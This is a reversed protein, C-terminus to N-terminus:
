TPLNVDGYGRRDADAVPVPTTDCAPETRYNRVVSFAPNAYAVPRLLVNSNFQDYTNTGLKLPPEGNSDNGHDRTSLTHSQRSITQTGDRSILERRFTNACYHLPGPVHFQVDSPNIQGRRSEPVLRMATSMLLPLFVATGVAQIIQGVLLMEFAPASAAIATGIIFLSTATLFITRLHYPRKVFGTAPILVALTLLYGTTLWQGLTPTIGLDSILTPLAVGLLMENLLVLFASGMLLGIILPDGPALKDSTGKHPLRTSTVAEIDTM